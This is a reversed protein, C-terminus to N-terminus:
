RLCSQGQPFHCGVRSSQLSLHETCLSYPTNLSISFLIPFSIILSLSHSLFHITQNKPCHSLPIIIKPITTQNENGWNEFVGGGCGEDGEEVETEGGHGEEVVLVVVPVKELDM